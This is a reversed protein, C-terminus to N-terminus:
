ASWGARQRRPLMLMGGLGLLALSAPEPIVSTYFGIYTADTNLGSVGDYFISVKGAFQGTLASDYWRIRDDTNGIINDTGNLIDTLNATQNGAWKLGYFIGNAEAATAVWDVGTPNEEFTIELGRSGTGVTSSVALAGAAINRIDIGASVGGITSNVAGTTGVSLTAGPAVAFDTRNLNLTGATGGGITAITNVLVDGAGVTVTGTTGTTRSAIILTNVDIDVATVGTLNITGTTTTADSGSPNYAVTWNNLDATFTGGTQVLSGVSPGNGTRYGVHMDARESDTGFTTSTWNDGLTVSGNTASGGSGASPVRAGIYINNTGGAVNLTGAAANSFDITGDAIGSQHSKYGVFLRNLDSSLFTADSTATLIGTANVGNTGTKMGVDLNGGSLSLTGNRLTITGTATGNGSTEGVVLNGSVNLTQNNLNIAHNATIDISDISRSGASLGTITFGDALDFTSGNPTADSRLSVSDVGSNPLGSPWNAGSSWLSGDGGTYPKLAAEANMTVGGLMAAAAFAALMRRTTITQSLVNM